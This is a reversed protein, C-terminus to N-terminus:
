KQFTSEELIIPYIYGSGFDKDLSAKGKATVIEGVKLGSAEGTFVIRAVEKEGTGDQIHVWDRGLINSSIKVIKGRVQVSKDKYNQRNKVVEYVSLTEKTQYPSRDVREKIFALHDSEPIPTRYELSSTFILRDFKRQLAQSTFNEAVLEEIFRVELGPNIPMDTIAVWHKTGKKDIELYAYGGGHLVQTIIGQHLIPEKAGLSLGLLLLSLALLKKM